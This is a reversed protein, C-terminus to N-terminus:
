IRTRKIYSSTMVLVSSLNATQWQGTVNFSHAITTDFVKTHFMPDGFMSKMPATGFGTLPADFSISSYYDATGSVGLSSIRISTNIEFPLVNGSLNPLTIVSTDITTANTKLRLTLTGVVTPTNPTLYYGMQKIHILDGVEFDNAAITLSGNGVGMLATETTTNAVNETFQNIYLPRGGQNTLELNGNLTRIWVRDDTLNTGIENLNLDTNIWTGDTFDISVPITAQDGSPTWGHQQQRSNQTIVAM